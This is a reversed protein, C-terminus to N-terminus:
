ITFLGQSLKSLLTGQKKLYVAIQHHTCKPHEVIQVTCNEGHTDENLCALLQNTHCVDMEEIGRHITIRVADKPSTTAERVSEVLRNQFSECQNRTMDDRSVHHIDKGLDVQPSFAVVSDTALHSFLLAASGGMSDGVMSVKEYPKSAARIRTQYEQFGQFGGQSDQQYWSQTPDAVFLVDFDGDYLNGNNLKAM